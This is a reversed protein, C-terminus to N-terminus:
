CGTPTTWRACCRSTSTTAPWSASRAAGEAAGQVERAAGAFREPTMGKPPRVADVADDPFPLNFPGYESGFFGGTTFAKLEEQEGIGKSGSASTSSRRSPRTAAARARPRDVRRHAPVRGDAAPRLRHALPVPAALAPHQRPRRRRALPDAHRPGDGQRREGAGASIKINDVATDIAPFTCLIKEVPM